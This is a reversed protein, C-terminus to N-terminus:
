QQNTHKTVFRQVLYSVGFVTTAAGGILFLLWISNCDWGWGLDISCDLGSLIIMMISFVAVLGSVIRVSVGVVRIYSSRFGSM